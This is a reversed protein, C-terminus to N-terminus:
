AGRRRCQPWTRPLSSRRPLSERSSKPLTLYPQSELGVTLSSLRVQLSCRVFRGHWDILVLRHVRGPLFDLVDDIRGAFGFGLRGNALHAVEDGLDRDLLGALGRLLLGGAGLLLPLEGQAANARLDANDEGTVERDELVGAQRDQAAQSDELLLRLRALELVAQHVDAVLDFAPGREALGHGFRGLGEVAEIHVHDLGALRAAREFDNEAPEGLELFAGLRELPLDFPRHDIRDDDDHDGDADQGEDHDLDHRRELLDELIELGVQRRDGANEDIDRM